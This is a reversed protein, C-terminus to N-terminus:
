AAPEEPKTQQADALAARVRSALVRVSPELVMSDHDGQVVHVDIGGAV